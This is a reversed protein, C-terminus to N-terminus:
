TIFKFVEIEQIDFYEYGNNLEYDETFGNWSNKYTSISHTNHKNSDEFNDFINIANAFWPGEDKNFNAASSNNNKFIKNKNFSFLFSKKDYAYGGKDKWAINLFGGFINNEKTKIISVTQEKNDCYYHFDKSTHGDRSSKYVLELKLRRKELKENQRKIENIILSYEKNTKITTISEGILYKRIEKGRKKEEIEEKFLDKLEM